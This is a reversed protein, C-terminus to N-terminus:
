KFNIGFFFTLITFVMLAWVFLIPKIELVILFINENRSVIRKVHLKTNQKNYAVSIFFYCNTPVMLSIISNFIKSYKYILGAM